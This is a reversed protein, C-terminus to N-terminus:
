ASKGTNSVHHRPKEGGRHGAATVGNVRRGSTPGPGYAERIAARDIRDEPDHISTMEKCEVRLSSIRFEDPETLLLWEFKFGTCINAELGRQQRPSLRMEM